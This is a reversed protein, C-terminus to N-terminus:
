AILRERAILDDQLLYVAVHHAHGPRGSVTEAQVVFEGVETRWSAEVRLDPFQEFMRAYLARLEDHGRVRVEDYGDEITADPTYCAVFADLDQANLAAIVREPADSV